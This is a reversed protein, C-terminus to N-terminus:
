RPQKSDLSRLSDLAVLQTWIHREPSDACGQLYKRALEPQGRNLLYRGILFDANVRNKPPMRDLVKDGAALDLPHKADIASVRAARPKVSALTRSVGM